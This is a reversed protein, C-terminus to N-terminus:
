ICLIVQHAIFLSCRDYIHSCFVSNTHTYYSKEFSSQEVYNFRSCILHLVRIPLSVFYIVDAVILITAEGIKKM